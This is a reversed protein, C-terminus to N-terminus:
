FQILRKSVYDTLFLETIQYTGSRLQENFDLSFTDTITKSTPALDNLM